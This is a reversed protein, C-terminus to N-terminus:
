CLFSARFVRIQACWPRSPLRFALLAGEGEATRSGRQSSSLLGQKYLSECPRSLLHFALLSGQRSPQSNMLHAQLAVYWRALEVAQAAAWALKM